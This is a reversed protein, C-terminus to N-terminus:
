RRRPAYVEALHRGKHSSVDSWDSRGIGSLDLLQAFSRSKHSSGENAALHEELLLVLRSLEEPQLCKAQEFLEDVSEV